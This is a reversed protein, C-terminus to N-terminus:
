YVQLNGNIVDEVYIEGNYKDFFIPLFHELIYIFNEKIIENIIGKCNAFLVKDYMNLSGDPIYLNDKSYEYSIKRTNDNGYRDIIEITYKKNINSNQFINEDNQNNLYPLLMNIKFTYELYKQDAYLIYM